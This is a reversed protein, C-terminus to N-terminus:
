PKVGNLKKLNLSKGGVGYYVSARGENTEGNDYGYAGVIVDSYRDGNVDGATSVSYGFRAGVQNSEATWAATAGLGSASGHYVFARGEYSQDNDYGYAGVIVDSYGDGNVDGATSVSCGFYADEQGSEATWAATAGLGSASGHYVFARGEDSQDNDYYPVGVIVDSYGDGNVDGATCVSWGFLADEQDSEATWNPFIALPDITIPYIANSTDFVIQIKGRLLLSRAECPVSQTAPYQNGSQGHLLSFRAPLERGTDDYVHLESYRIVRTGDPASFEIATGEKNITPIVNGTLSIELSIESKQNQIGSKPDKTKLSSVPPKKLTFGQELGRSDNIYWEVLDGRHYEMRNGNTKLEAFDVSRIHGTYGLGTLKMGWEWEPIKATRPIVRIGEQTFYTRLNHARNPAQYAAKIDKLHTRDQWTIHYESRRIDNQVTAWWNPSIETPLRFSSVDPGTAAQIEGPLFFALSIALTLIFRFFLMSSSQAEKM